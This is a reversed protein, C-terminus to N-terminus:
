EGTPENFLEKREKEAQKLRDRVYIHTLILDLEQIIDEQRPTLAERSGDYLNVVLEILEYGLMESDAIQQFYELEFNEM